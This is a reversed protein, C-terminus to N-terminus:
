PIVNRQSNKGCTSARNETTNSFCCAVTEGNRYISKGLPTHTNGSVPGRGRFATCAVHLGRIKCYGEDALADARCYGMGGKEELALRHKSHRPNLIPRNNHGYWGM